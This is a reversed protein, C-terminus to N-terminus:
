RSPSSTRQSISTLSNPGSGGTVGSMSLYGGGGPSMSMYGSSNGSGIIAQNESDEQFFLTIM